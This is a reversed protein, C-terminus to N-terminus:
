YIKKGLEKVLYDWLLNEKWFSWIRKIYIINYKKM